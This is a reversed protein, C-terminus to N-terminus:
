LRKAFAPEMQYALVRNKYHKDVKDVVLCHDKGPYTRMARGIRQVAKVRAGCSSYFFVADIVPVDVGEDFLPTAAIAPIRGDELEKLWQERVHTPDDGTVIPINREELIDRIAELEAKTESFLITRYGQCLDLGEVLSFTRKFRPPVLWGKDILTDYDIHFILPGLWAELEMEDGGSRYPTATLGLFYRSATCAATVKKFTAAAQHHSEDVMVMTANQLCEHSLNRCASQATAVTIWEQGMSKPIRKGDGWLYVPTDPFAQQFRKATQHLLHKTPVVFILRPTKSDNYLQQAVETKGGGTPIAIIGRRNKLAAAVADRQYPRLEHKPRYVRSDVSIIAPLSAADVTVDFGHRAFLNKVRLLLGTPFSCSFPDYLNVFGDWRGSAYGPNFDNAGDSMYRLSDKLVQGMSFPLGHIHSRETGLTIRVTM